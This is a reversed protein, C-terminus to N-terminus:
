WEAGVAYDDDEDAFPRLGFHNRFIADLIQAVQSGSLLSPTGGGFYITDVQAPTEIERWGLIEKVVAQVYREALSREYIGTAFDCYSCRSRCFPIHIYIGAASM